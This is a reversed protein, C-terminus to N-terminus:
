SMCECIVKKTYDDNYKWNSVSIPDKDTDPCLLDGNIYEYLGCINFTLEIDDHWLEWNNKNLLNFTKHKGLLDKPRICIM